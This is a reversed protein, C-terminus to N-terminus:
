DFWERFEIKTKILIVYYVATAHVASEIAM